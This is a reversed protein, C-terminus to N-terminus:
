HVLAVPISSSITDLIGPLDTSDSTAYASGYGRVLGTLGGFTVVPQGAACCTALVRSVEDTTGPRVIARARCPQHNAWSTARAAVAAGTLVNDPGVIAALRELPM